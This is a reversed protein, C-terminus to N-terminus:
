EGAKGDAGADSIVSLYADELSGYGVSVEDLPIGKDEALKRVEATTMGGIEMSGDAALASTGGSGALAWMLQAAMPTRVRAYSRAHEGVFHAVSTDAIIRGKHIVLLHDAVMSMESMLHSSLFVIKGDAAMRRLLERLWRIGEADLGNTPEDLILVDPDGLLASALALRQGMGLSLAGVRKNAADTLNMLELVEAIRGGGIRNSQAVWSLHGAVTLSPHPATSELVAGVMRVPYRIDVYRRGCITASGQDPRTLGLMMRMTTSKGAGNPGLFGTVKGPTVAFSVRDVVARDRYRKTLNSLEIM